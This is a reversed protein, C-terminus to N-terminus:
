CDDSLFPCGGGRGADEEGGAPQNGIQKGAERHDKSSTEPLMGPQWRKCYSGTTGVPLPASVTSTCICSGLSPTSASDTALSALSSGSTSRPCRWGPPGAMVPAASRPAGLQELVVHSNTKVTIEARYVCLFHQHKRSPSLLAECSLHRCLRTQQLTGGMRAIFPDVQAGSTIPYCTSLKKVGFMCPHERQAHTSCAGTQPAPFTM